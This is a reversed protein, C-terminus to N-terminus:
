CLSSIPIRLDTPADLVVTFFSIRTLSNNHDSTAEAIPISSPTATRCKTSIPPYQCIRDCVTVKCSSGIMMTASKMKTERRTAKLMSPRSRSHFAVEDDEQHCKEDARAHTRIGSLHSEM